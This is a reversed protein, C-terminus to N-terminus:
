LYLIVKGATGSQLLAFAEEFQELPFRHTIVPTVDLGNRLLATAQEWTRWMRRGFIGVVHAEKFIVEDALDLRVEKSPLGLLSV